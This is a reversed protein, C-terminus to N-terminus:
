KKPTRKGIEQFTIIYNTGKINKVKVISGKLQSILRDILKLGLSNTTKSIIEDSYGVGNDGILMKFHHNKNKEIELSILGSSDNLIGYKLSNTIIENLLLGLPIATDLTLSVKPANIKFDINHEAGKISVILEFILKKIYNQFNIKSIDDSKYLMEHILAMSKIRNQCNTFLLKSQADDICRAQLRLLSTIVQLNNKVRHHIEKLLMEKDSVLINLELNKHTLEKNITEIQNLHHNNLKNVKTGVIYSIVGLVLPASDIIWMLPFYKHIIRLSITQNEPYLLYICIIIALIPFLLGVLIGKLVYTSVIRSHIM